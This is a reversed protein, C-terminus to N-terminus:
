PTCCGLPRTRQMQSLFYIFALLYRTRGWAQAIEVFVILCIVFLLPYAKSFLFELPLLCLEVAVLAIVEFFQTTGSCRRRHRQDGSGSVTARLKRRFRSPELRRRFIRRGDAVGPVRDRLLGRERRLHHGSDQREPQLDRTPRLVDHRDTKARFVRQDSM